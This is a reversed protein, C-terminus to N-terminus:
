KGGKCLLDALVGARDVCREAERSHEYVMGAAFAIAILILTRM